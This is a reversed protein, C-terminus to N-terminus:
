VELVELESMKGSLMKLVAPMNGPSLRMGQAVIKRHASSSQIKLLAAAAIAGACELASKAIDTAPPPPESLLM